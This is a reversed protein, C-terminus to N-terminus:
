NVSTAAIGVISTICSGVVVYWGGLNTRTLFASPENDAIFLFDPSFSHIGGSVERSISRRLKAASRKRSQCDNLGNKASRAFCARRCPPSCASLAYQRSKCAPHTFKFKGGRGTPSQVSVSLEIRAPYRILYQPLAQSTLQTMKVVYGDTDM